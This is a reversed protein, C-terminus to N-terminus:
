IEVTEIRGFIRSCNPGYCRVRKIEAISAFQAADGKRSERTEAISFRLM